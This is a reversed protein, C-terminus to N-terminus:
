SRNGFATPIARGSLMWTRGHLVPVDAIQAM